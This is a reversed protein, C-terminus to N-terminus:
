KWPWEPLTAFQLKPGAVAVRKGDPSLRVNPVSAGVRLLRKGEKTRLLHGFRLSQGRKRLRSGDLRDVRIEARGPSQGFDRQALDAQDQGVLRLPQCAIAGSCIPSRRKRASTSAVWARM